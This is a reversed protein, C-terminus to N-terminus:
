TRSARWLTLEFAYGFDQGDTEVPRLGGLGIRRLILGANALTTRISADTELKYKVENLKEIALEHAEKNEGNFTAYTDARVFCRVLVTLEHRKQVNVLPLDNILTLDLIIPLDRERSVLARRETASPTAGAPKKSFFFVYKTSSGYSSSSTYPNETSDQIVNRVAKIADTVEYLAM